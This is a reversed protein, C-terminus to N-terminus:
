LGIRAAAAENLPSYTPMGPSSSRGQVGGWDPGEPTGGSAPQPRGPQGLPGSPGRPGTGPVRWAGPVWGAGPPSSRTAIWCKGRIGQIRPWGGAWFPRHHPCDPGEPAGGGAAPAAPFRGGSGLPGGRYVRSGCPTSLQAPASYPIPVMTLPTGLTPPWPVMTGMTGHGGYGPVGGGMTGTGQACHEARTDRCDDDMQSAELLSSAAMQSRRCDDSCRARYGALRAGAM